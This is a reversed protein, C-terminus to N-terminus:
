LTLNNDEVVPILGRAAAGDAVATSTHFLLLMHLQNNVM